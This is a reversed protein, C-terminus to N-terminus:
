NWFIFDIVAHNVRVRFIFKYCPFFPQRLRAAAGPAAAAQERTAGAGEDDRLGREEVGSQLHSGGARSLEVMDRNESGDDDVLAPCRLLDASVM